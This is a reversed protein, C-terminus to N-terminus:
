NPKSLISIYLGNWWSSSDEYKTTLLQREYLKNLNSESIFDQASKVVNEFNADDIILVFTKDFMPLLKKLIQKQIKYDHSGDYFIINPHKFLIDKHEL